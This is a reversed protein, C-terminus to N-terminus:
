LIIYYIYHLIIYTANYPVTLHAINFKSPKEQKLTCITLCLIVLVKRNRNEPFYRCITQHFHDFKESSSATEMNLTLSCVVYSGLQRKRRAHSTHEHAKGNIFSGIIPMLTMTTKVCNHTQEVAWLWECSILDRRIMVGMWSGGLSDLASRPRGWRSMKQGRVGANLFGKDEFLRIYISYFSGFSICTEARSSLRM